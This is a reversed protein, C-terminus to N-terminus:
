RLENQPAVVGQKYLDNTTPTHMHLHALNSMIWLTGVMLIGIITLTFMFMGLNWKPGQERGMHLFFILQVLLQALACLVIAGPAFSGLHPALLFSGATLLVSLLFGLVYSSISVLHTTPKTM